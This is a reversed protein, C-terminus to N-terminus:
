GKLFGHILTIDSVGAKEMKKVTEHALDLFAKFRGIEPCEMAVEVGCASVRLGEAKQRKPKKTGKAESVWQQVLDRKADKAVARALLRRQEDHSEVSALLKAVSSAIGGASLADKVERCANEALTLVRSVEGASLGFHAAAEARSDGTENIHAQIDDALEADTLANKIHSTTVRYLRMEAPTLLRPAIVAPVLDIGAVKAAFARCSGDMAWYRGEIDERRCLLLPVKVGHKQISPLLSKQVLELTPTRNGPPTDILRADVMEVSGTSIDLKKQGAPQM